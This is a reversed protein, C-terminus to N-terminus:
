ASRILASNTFHPVRPMVSSNALPSEPATGAEPLHTSPAKEGFHGAVEGYTVATPPVSLGVTMGSVLQVYELPPNEFLKGWCHHCSVATADYRLFEATGDGSPSKLALPRPNGSMAAWAASKWTIAFPLVMDTAPVEQALGVAAAM